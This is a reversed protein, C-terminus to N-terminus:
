SESIQYMQMQSTEMQHLGTISLCDVNLSVM